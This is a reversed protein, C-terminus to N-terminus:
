AMALTRARRRAVSSGLGLAERYKAVTRRALDFGEAQLRTVLQDDSLTNEGEAAILRAIRDKVAFASAGEGGEAQVGSAFFWRLEHLGRPCSLYKNAAVRSVTSEHCGVADAIQRLTLPKLASVGTEFFGQQHRVLETTVKVITRARQDLAKMLWSADALCEAIFASGAKGGHGAVEALYRRDVILRPLTAQNLEVQWGGGAMPRVFVDAVIPTAAEAGFRLGPKPDYSRLERIMDRVDDHDVECLRSLAAIDGRAVLDLHALLAQMAPDLRDAEAAQLAICEALSRAGVGTPDFGQIVALVAEVAGPLIGLQDALVDTSLTLYGADDIADVLQGAIFLADGSLQEGAQALLHAHLSADAGAFRDLDPAETGPMPADAMIDRRSAADPTELDLGPEADPATVLSELGPEAPADSLGDAAAAASHEAATQAGASELWEAGEPMTDAAPPEGAEPAEALLPNKDLAESIYTELELNSLTLLKIALQLQPTMVLQQSQRLELRPAISM